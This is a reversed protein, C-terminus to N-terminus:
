YFHFQLIRPDRRVRYEKECDRIKNVTERDKM